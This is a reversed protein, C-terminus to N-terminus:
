REYLLRTNRMIYSNLGIGQEALKKMQEVHHRGASAYSYRYTKATGYFIVDIYDNGIEYCKINSDGGLNKYMQM